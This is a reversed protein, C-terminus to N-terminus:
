AGVLGPVSYAYEEFVVERDCKCWPHRIMEEDFTHFGENSTCEDVAGYVHGIWGTARMGSVQREIETDVVRTLENDALRDVYGAGMTVAEPPPTGRGIAALVMPMIGVLAITVTGAKSTGALSESPVPERGSSGRLYARTLTQSSAQGATITRAAIPVFAGYTAKIEDEHVVEYARGLQRTMEARIARLRALYNRTIAERRADRSSPM